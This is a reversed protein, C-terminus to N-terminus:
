KQHAESGGADWHVMRGFINVFEFASQNLFMNRLHYSQCFFEQLNKLNSFYARLFKRFTCIQM